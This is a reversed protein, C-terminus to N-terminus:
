ISKTITTELADENLEELFEQTLSDIVDISFCSHDDYPYRMANSINFDIVEGDFKMTLTGKFVDIKTRATKMFPRGLLIPLSTSHASDEMDLVYFDALFILHNVMVVKKNSMRRKTTCLEKLFKAYKPVQKIAELLPINVQVKQFTELIDKENEDKKSQIFPLLPNVKTMPTNTSEEENQLKEDEKPASKPIDSKIGVEKGSLLTIAKASEFGGNSTVNTSSPLKGQERSFQGMFEITQGVQKKLDEVENAQNQMGQNEQAKSGVVVLTKDVLAGGALADLMQREIPLLGEYFYQILLEEKM